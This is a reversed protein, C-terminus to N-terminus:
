PFRFTARGGKSASLLLRCRGSVLGTEIVEAGRLWISMNFFITVKGYYNKATLHKVVRDRDTAILDPYKSAHEAFVFAVAVQAKVLKTQIRAGGKGKGVHGKGKTGAASAALGSSVDLIADYKSAKRLPAPPPRPMQMWNGGYTQTASDCARLILADAMQPFFHGRSGDVISNLKATYFIESAPKECIPDDGQFPLPRAKTRPLAFIQLTALASLILTLSLRSFMSANM